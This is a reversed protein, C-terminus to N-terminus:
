SGKNIISLVPLAFLTLKYGNNHETSRLKSVTGPWTSHQVLGSDEIIREAGTGTSPM